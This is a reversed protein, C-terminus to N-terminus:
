PDQVSLHKASFKPHPNEWHVWFGVPTHSLLLTAILHCPTSLWSPLTYVTLIAPHLYDLHCPTSLSSPLTYVTLIAPHLCDPHCPTSLWSPLTYVTFIAPHLCDPHCPTSLWSPLTYVTLIAPHLCDPHCSTSLWSPLTYVTLSAPHLCDPHCPTSLWSPLTYVTLITPYLYDLHCPTSLWSPNTTSPQSSGVHGTKHRTCSSRYSVALGHISSSNDLFYAGRKNVQWYDGQERVAGAKLRCIEGWSVDQGQPQGDWDCCARDNIWLKIRGVCRTRTAPWRLWLTGPWYNGGYIDQGQPRGAWECCAQDTIGERCTKDKHGALENVVHRTLLGRGVHRTRTAPWSVWLM